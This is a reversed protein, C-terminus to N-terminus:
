FLKKCIKKSNKELWHDIEKTAKQMRLGKSIGLKGEERELATVYRFINKKFGNLNKINAFYRM